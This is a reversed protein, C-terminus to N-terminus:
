NTKNNFVATLRALYGKPPLAGDNDKEYDEKVKDKTPKTEYNKTQVWTEFNKLRTEQDDDDLKRKKGPSSDLKQTQKEMDRLEKKATDLEEKIREVQKKQLAIEALRLVQGLHQDKSSIRAALTPHKKLTAGACKTFLKWADDENLSAVIEEFKDSSM